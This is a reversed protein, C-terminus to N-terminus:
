ESIGNISALSEWGCCVDFGNKEAQWITLANLKIDKDPQTPLEKYEWWESGDYEGRELWWNIGVILLDQAVKASGYGSDYDVDAVVEFISWSTKHVASGVWLVDQITKNNETLCEITEKLLNRM